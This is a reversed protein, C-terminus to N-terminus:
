KAPTTIPLHLNQPNIASEDLALVFSTKQSRILEGRVEYDVIESLVVRLGGAVKNVLWERCREGNSSNVFQRRTGASPDNAVVGAM